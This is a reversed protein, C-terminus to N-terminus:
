HVLAKLAIIAMGFTADIVGATFAAPWPWARRRAGAMGWVLLSVVAVALALNIAVSEALLGTGGVLLLAIQPGAAEIMPFEEVMHHLLTAWVLTAGGFRHTLLASYVHALWFVVLTLAVTAALHGPSEGGASGAVTVAASVITGYIARSPNITLRTLWADVSRRGAERWAYRWRGRQRVSMM